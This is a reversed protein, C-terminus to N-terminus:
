EKEWYLASDCATYRTGGIRDSYEDNVKVFLAKYKAYDLNQQVDTGDGNQVMYDLKSALADSLRTLELLTLNM